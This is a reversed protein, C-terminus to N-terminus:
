NGQGRCDAFPEHACPFDNGTIGRAVLGNVSEGGAKAAIELM